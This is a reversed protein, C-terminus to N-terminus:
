KTKKIYIYLIKIKQIIFETFLTLLCEQLRHNSISYIMNSVILNFLNSLFAKTKALYQILNEHKNIIFPTSLIVTSAIAPSEM